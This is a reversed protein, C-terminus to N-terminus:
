GGDTPEIGDGREAAAALLAELIAADDIRVEHRRIELTAGAPRLDEALRHAPDVAANESRFHALFEYVRPMDVLAPEVARVYVIGGEGVQRRLGPFLTRTRMLDFVVHPDDARVRFSVMGGGTIPSAPVAEARPDSTRRMARE